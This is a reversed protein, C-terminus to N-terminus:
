CQFTLLPREAVRRLQRYASCTGVPAWVATDSCLGLVPSSFIVASAHPRASKCQRASSVLTLFFIIEKTFLSGPLWCLGLGQLFISNGKCLCSLSVKASLYGSCNMPGFFFFVIFINTIHQDVCYLHWMSATVPAVVLEPYPLEPEDAIIWKPSLSPNYCIDKLRTTVGIRQIEKLSTSYCGFQEHSQSVPTTNRPDEVIDGWRALKHTLPGM